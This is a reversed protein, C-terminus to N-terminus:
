RINRTQISLILENTDKVSTDKNYNSNKFFDYSDWEDLCVCQLSKSHNNELVDLCDILNKKAHPGYSPLMAEM